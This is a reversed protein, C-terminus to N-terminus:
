RCASRPVEDEDDDDSLIAAPHLESNSSPMVDEPVSAFDDVPLLSAGVDKIAGARALRKAIDNASNSNTVLEDPFAEASRTAALAAATALRRAAAEKDARGYEVYSLALIPPVRV